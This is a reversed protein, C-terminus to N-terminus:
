RLAVVDKIHERLWRPSARELERAQRKPESAKCNKLSKTAKLSKSELARGKSIAADTERIGAALKSISPSTAKSSIKVTLRPHDLLHDHVAPSAHARPLTLDVRGWWPSRRLELFDRRM